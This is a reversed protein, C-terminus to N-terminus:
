CLWDGALMSYFGKSEIHFCYVRQLLGVRKKNFLVCVKATIVASVKQQNSAKNVQPETLIQHYIDRNPVTSILFHLVDKNPCHLRVPFFFEVYDKLDNKSIWWCTQFILDKGPLVNLLGWDALLSISRIKQRASMVIRVSTFLKGISQVLFM